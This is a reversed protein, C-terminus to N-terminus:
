GPWCQCFIYPLGCESTELPFLPCGVSRTSKANTRFADKRERQWRVQFFLRNQGSAWIAQNAAM